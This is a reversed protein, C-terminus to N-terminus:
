ADFDKYNADRSAIIRPKVPWKIGFAPDDWRVGATCESHYLESIQYFVESNNELTLYGHAVGEPIYLTKRNKGSLEVAYWRKFTRSGSRLDIIVDYISGATCRVLKAEEFPTVQYHMGRLTDKKNNFSISCQMLNANLGRSEFDERCWSRAFFGRKDELRELELVFVGKLPTEIFKM